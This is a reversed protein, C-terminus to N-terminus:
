NRNRCTKRPRAPIRTPWCTPTLSRLVGYALGFQQWPLAEFKLTVADGVHLRAVDRTDVQLEALLPADAPVLRILTEAERVM